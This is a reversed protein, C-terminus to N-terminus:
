CSSSEGCGKIILSQLSNAACQVPDKTDISDSLESEASEGSRRHSAAELESLFRAIDAFGHQSALGLATKGAEDTLHCCAGSELLFRVVDLHGNRPASRLEM